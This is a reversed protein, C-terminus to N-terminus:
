PAATRSSSPARPKAPTCVNRSRPPLSRIVRPCHTHQAVLFQQAVTALDQQRLDVDLALQAQLAAACQDDTKAAQTRRHRQVQGRGPDALQVQRIEIRDVQGVQLPLDDVIAGADTDALHLRRHAPQARQIRLDAQDAMAGRQVLVGEIGGHRRDVQHEVAGVVEGGALRDVDGAHAGALGQDAARPM